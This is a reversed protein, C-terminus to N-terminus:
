SLYPPMGSGIRPLEKEFRGLWREVAGTLHDRLQRAAFATEKRSLLDLIELHEHLADGIQDLPISLVPDFLHRTPAFLIHTRELARLIEHNPCAGLLDVHLDREIRDFSASDVSEKQLLDAIRSRAESIAAPLLLPAALELAAPELLARLDYLDRVRRPTVHEAIWTGSRSKDILGVAHMRALVDRTVSRSVDFHEALRLENIRVQQRLVAALVAQEVEAYIREWQRSQDLCVRDLPMPNQAMIEGAQGAVFFGKRGLSTVLGDAELQELAQRVPSRSVGFTRTLQLEVLREGATLSGSLILDRLGAHVQRSLSAVDDRAM